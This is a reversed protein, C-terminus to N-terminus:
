AEGSADYISFRWVPALPSLVPIQASQASNILIADPKLTSIWELDPDLRLGIDAVSPPVPLTAAANTYSRIEAAAIPVAGLALVTELLGWDLVVLRPRVRAAIAVRWPLCAVAAGALFPRRRVM